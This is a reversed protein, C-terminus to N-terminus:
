AGKTRNILEQMIECHIAAMHDHFEVHTIGKPNLKNFELRRAVMKDHIEWLDSEKLLTLNYM